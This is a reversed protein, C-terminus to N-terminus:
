NDQQGLATLMKYRVANILERRRELTFKTSDVPECIEVEITQNLSLSLDDGAQVKHINKIVVPVILAKTDLALHFGGRKFVGLEGNESRTGEPAIWLTIGNLMQEKAHQLDKLVQERNNRDVSLFGGRKLAAGFIPINFLEKKGLFRFSSNLAAVSVPIDYLSSHNCMVIIRRGKTHFDLNGVVRTDVRVLKLLKGSWWKMILDVDCITLRKFISAIIIKLCSSLTYVATMSAIWIFRLRGAKEGILTIKHNAHQENDGFSDSPKTQENKM